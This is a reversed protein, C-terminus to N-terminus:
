TENGALAKRASSFLNADVVIQQNSPKLLGNQKIKVVIKDYILQKVLNTMLSETFLKTWVETGGVRQQLDSLTHV